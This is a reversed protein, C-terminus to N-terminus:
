KHTSKTWKINKVNSPLFRFIPFIDLDGNMVTSISKTYEEVHQCLPDTNFDFQRGFLFGFMVSSTWRLLPEKPNFPQGNFKQFSEILRDLATNICTEAVSKGLGLKKLISLSLQRRHFFEESSPCFSLGTLFLDYKSFRRTLQIYHASTKFHEYAIVRPIISQNNFILYVIFGKLIAKNWSHAQGM